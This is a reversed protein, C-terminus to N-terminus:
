LTISDKVLNMVDSLLLLEIKYSDNTLSCSIVRPISIIDDEILGYNKVIFAFIFKYTQDTKLIFFKNTPIIIPPAILWVFKVSGKTSVNYFHIIKLKESKIDIDIVFAEGMIHFIGIHYSCRNFISLKNIYVNYFDLKSIDYVTM